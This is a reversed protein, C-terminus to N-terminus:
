GYQFCHPWAGPGQGDLVREAIAIQQERTAQWAYRAFAGGGYGLWTDPHFQLGGDYTSDLDWRGGSECQAIADWDVGGDTPASPAPPAPPQVVEQLEEQLREAREEAARVRALREAQLDDRILGVQRQQDSVDAQLRREIGAVTETMEAVEARASDLEDLKEFMQMRDIALDELQQMHVEGSSQLYTAREELDALSEASMLIEFTGAAGNMYLERAILKLKEKRRLIRKAITEVEGETSAISAHVKRLRVSAAQLQEQASGLEVQIRGLEEEAEDLNRETSQSAPAAPGSLQVFLGLVAVLAWVQVLPKWRM